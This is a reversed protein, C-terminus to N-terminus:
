YNIVPDPRYGSMPVSKDSSTQTNAPKTAAKKETSKQKETRHKATSDTQAFAQNMGASGGILAALILLGTRTMQIEEIPKSM